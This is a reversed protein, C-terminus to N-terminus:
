SLSEAEDFPSRRSKKYIPDNNMRRENLSKDLTRRSNKPLEEPIGGSFQGIERLLGSATGFFDRLPGSATGFFERLFTSSVGFRM